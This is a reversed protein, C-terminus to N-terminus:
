RRDKSLKNEGVDDKGIFCNWYNRIEYFNYEALFQDRYRKCRRKRECLDNDCQAFGIREEPM